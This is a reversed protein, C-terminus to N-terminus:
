VDDTSQESSISPRALILRAFQVVALLLMMVLSYYYITFEYRDIVAAAILSQLILIVAFSASMPVFIHLGVLHQDRASVKSRARPIFTLLLFITSAFLTASIRVADETISLLGLTIFALFGPTLSMLLLNTVRYRDVYIWQGSRHIFIGVVGSFGALGISFEVVTSLLETAESM